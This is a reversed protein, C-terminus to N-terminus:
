VEGVPRQLMVIIAEGLAVDVLYEENKCQSADARTMSSARLMGNSESGQRCSFLTGWSSLLELLAQDIREADTDSIETTGLEPVSSAAFSSAVSADKLKSSSGTRPLSNSGVSLEDTGTTKGEASPLPSPATQWVAQSTAGNAKFVVYAVQETTHSREVGGSGSALQDEDFALNLTAGDIASTGYLVPWGGDNGDMAAASVIAADPSLVTDLTYAFPAGDDPGRITDGGVAAEFDYDGFSGSGTEIVVYGIEEDLRTTNPDEAVHKGVYLTSSNPVSTRGGGRAWFVSWDDNATLVQGVVVPTTYSNYYSRSQGVWSNKRDTVTSTFRLAEMRLGPEDYVGEEIVFYHVSYSGTHSAGPQEVKVDFSNGVANRVRAVAPVNNGGYDVSAVVVMSTYNNPLTVTQWANGVGSVVDVHLQPEQVRAIRIADANLRNGSPSGSVDNALEVVLTGSSITLPNGLNQFNKGLHVTDAQPTMEQNVREIHLQTTGDFIRYPADIARNSFESWTASVQYDGPSVDFTWTAWATRSGDGGYAEYVDGQYGQGTWRQWAPSSITFGADGDDIIEVPPSPPIPTDDDLITGTGTASSATVNREGSVVGSLSVTFTENPEIEGDATPTVTFTESTSEAAFNLTLSSVPTYDNDSLLATGDATSVDVSTAADVPNSLTVTFTIPGADENGSVSNVTFEASDDNTITGTGTLTPGDGAFTVDRGGAALSSLVLALTEDLEVKSDATTSVPITLATTSGVAFLQTNALPLPTYDNDTTTASGKVTARDATVAVDVPNDITISFGLSSGEAASPANISVVASDDDDITGVATNSLDATRSGLATATSLSATFQESLEVLDDKTIAITVAKNATDLADFTVADATHDFDGPETSTDAYSIDVTVPIDIQKDLSVTLTMTGASEDVTQSDITFTASDNDTINATVSDISIADYNSGTSTVVHTITSTHDGEVVNDDSAQVYITQASQDTLNSLVVSTSFTTNDLSVLSEGDAEVEIDVAATPMTDLAITYTDSADAENVDTSGNSQTVTV